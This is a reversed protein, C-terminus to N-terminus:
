RQPASPAAPPLPPQRKLQKHDRALVFTKGWPGPPLTTREVLVEAPIASKTVPSQLGGGVEWVTGNEDVFQGDGFFARRKPEGTQSYEVIKLGPQDLEGYRYIPDPSEVVIAYNKEDLQQKRVVTSALQPCWHLIVPYQYQWPIYLWRALPKGGDLSAWEPQDQTQGGKRLDQLSDGAFAIISPSGQWDTLVFKGTAFDLSCRVYPGGDRAYKNWVVLWAAQGDERLRFEIDELPVRQKRCQFSHRDGHPTIWIVQVEYGAGHGMFGHERRQYTLRGGDPLEVYYPAWPGPPPPPPFCSRFSWWLL